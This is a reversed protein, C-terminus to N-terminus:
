SVSFKGGWMVLFATNLTQIYILKRVAAFLVTNEKVFYLSARMGMEKQSTYLVTVLNRALPNLKRFVCAMHSCIQSIKLWNIQNETNISLRTYNDHPQQKRQKHHHMLWSHCVTRSRVTNALSARVSDVTYNTVRTAWDSYHRAVTQVVPRDLHSGRRLRFSKGEPRQTWVPEPPGGLWPYLPYRLNKGPPLVCGPRSASWEGWYM